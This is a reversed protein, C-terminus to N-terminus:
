GREEGATRRRGHSSHLAAPDDFAVFPRARITDPVLVRPPATGGDGATRHVNMDHWVLLPMWAAQYLVPLPETGPLAAATFPLGAIPLAASSGARHSGIARCRAAIKGPNRIPVCARNSRQVPEPRPHCPVSPLVSTANATSKSITLARYMLRKTPMRGHAAYVTKRTRLQFNTRWMTKLDRDGQALTPLYDACDVHQGRVATYSEVRENQYNCNNVRRALLPSIGFM